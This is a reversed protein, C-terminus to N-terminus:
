RRDPKRLVATFFDRKLDTIPYRGLVDEFREYFQQDWEKESFHLHVLELGLLRFYKDYTDYTLKNVWSFHGRKGQREFFEIAVEDDFLLHPWPFYVDRYRHSASPGRHLNAYLWMLGGPRLVRDAEKLARFPRGVHEWVAFSIIREFSDDAFPMAEASATCIQVGDGRYTLWEPYPKVDIGFARCGFKHRLFWVEQGQGCGIELARTGDLELYRAVQGLRVKAGQFRSRPDIERPTPTLPKPKYEENLQEFLKIDYRTRVKGRRPLTWDFQVGDAEPPEPWGTDLRVIRPRLTPEAHPYINEVQTAAGRQRRATKRRKLVRRARRGLERYRTLV